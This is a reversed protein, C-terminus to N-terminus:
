RSWPKFFSDIETLYIDDILAPKSIKKKFIDHPTKQNVSVENGEAFKKFSLNFSSARKAPKSHAEDLQIQKFNFPNRTINIFGM